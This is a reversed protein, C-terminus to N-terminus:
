RKRGPANEQIFDLGRKALSASFLLADRKASSNELLNEAVVPGTPVSLTLLPPSTWSRSNSQIIKHKTKCKNRKKIHKIKSKM